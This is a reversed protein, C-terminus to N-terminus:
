SVCFSSIPQLQAVRRHTAWADDPIVALADRVRRRLAKKLSAVASSITAPSPSPYVFQLPPFPSTPFLFFRLCARLNYIRTSLM